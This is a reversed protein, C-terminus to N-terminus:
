IFYLIIFIFLALLVGRLRGLFFSSYSLSTDALISKVQMHISIGGFALFFIALISQRFSNSVLILCNIGKTLDFLGNLIIYPYTDLIFYKCIISAILNFFLSIGYINILVKLSSTVAKNLSDSFNKPYVNKVKFPKKEKRILLFLILNSIILASLIKFCIVKDKIISLLTGLIFLPNPFHSAMLINNAEKLSLYKKEYLEKTYKAGSPFGSIMSMLFIYLSASNKHSVKEILEILGYDIFLASIIFFLFSVPFLRNFFIKTYELVNTIVFQGNLLCLILFIFLSVLIIIRHLTKNM